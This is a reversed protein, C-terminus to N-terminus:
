AKEVQTPLSSFVLYFYFLGIIIEYATKVDEEEVVIFRCNFGCLDTFM